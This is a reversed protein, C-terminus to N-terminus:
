GFARGRSHRRISRAAKRYSMGVLGVATVADRTAPPASAVAQVIERARVGPEPAGLAHDEFLMVTTFRHAATRYHRAHTNRLARLRYGLERDHCIIRPRRPVRAFAEQVLDEADLQSGCLACDARYLADIHAPCDRRILCCMRRPPTPGPRWDAGRAISLRAMCWPNVLGTSPCAAM